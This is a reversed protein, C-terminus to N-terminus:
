RAIEDRNFISLRTDGRVPIGSFAGSHSGRPSPEVVKVPGVNSVEVIQGAVLDSGEPLALLRKIWNM